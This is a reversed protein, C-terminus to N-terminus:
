EKTMRKGFRRQIVHSSVARELEIYRLRMRIVKSWRFLDLPM